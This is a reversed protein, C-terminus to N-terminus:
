GQVVDNALEGVGEVAVVVRDGPALPGVGPPTGTSLVDGPLLTMVATVFEILRRLPFILDRTSSHQRREGNVRSEIGVPRDLDAAAICPGVPAFTDFGKARTFQKDAAQIDRASVDNFVMYGFVAELAEDEPIDRATKGMVLAMEIEYDLKSVFEPYLIDSGSGSLATRPKIVLAPDEPPSMNQERAHDTYNFALCVIKPPNPVPHLMKLESVRRGYGMSGAQAAAEQLWGDFMFEKVSDPLPIGTEYAMDERTAAMGDKVLAYTSKGGDEVRAIKM